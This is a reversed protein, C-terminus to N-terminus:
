FLLFACLGEQLWLTICPARCDNKEKWLSQHLWASSMFHAGLVWLFWVLWYMQSPFDTSCTLHYIVCLPKMMQTCSNMMLGATTTCYGSLCSLRNFPVTQFILGFVIITLWKYCVEDKWHRLNSKKTQIFNNKNFVWVWVLMCAYRSHPSYSLCILSFLLAPATWPQNSSLGLHPGRFVYWLSM